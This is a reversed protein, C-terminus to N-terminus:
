SSVKTASFTETFTCSAGDATGAGSVTGSLSTASSATISGSSLSTVVVTVGGSTFSCNQGAVLTLTNGSPTWNLDCGDPPTSVIEGNPGNGFVLNGTDNTSGNVGDCTYANTYQQVQWTGIFQQGASGCGALAAVTFATLRVKAIM